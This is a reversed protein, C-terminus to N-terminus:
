IFLRHMDIAKGEIMANRYVNHLALNANNGMKKLSKKVFDVTIEDCDVIGKFVSVIENNIEDDSMGKITPITDYLLTSYITYPETKVLVNRIEDNTHPKGYGIQSFMQVRTQSVIANMEHYYTVYLSRAYWYAMTNEDTANMVEIVINYYNPPADVEDYGDHIFKNRVVNSHM